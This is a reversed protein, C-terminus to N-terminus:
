TLRSAVLNTPNVSLKLRHYFDGRWCRPFLTKLRTEGHTARHAIQQPFYPLYWVSSIQVTDAIKPRTEIKAIGLCLSRCKLVCFDSRGQSKSEPTNFYLQCLFYCRDLFSFNIMSFLVLISITTRNVTLSNERFRGATKRQVFMALPLPLM